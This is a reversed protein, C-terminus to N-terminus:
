ESRGKWPADLRFGDFLPGGFPALLEEVLALAPGSRKETFLADFASLFRAAFDADTQRLRRPITKSHSSWLGRSRFYFDAADQYLAAGTALLEEDSRPFKMDDAWDTLRYRRLQLEAEDFPPPGAEYLDSAERKLRASLESPAPVESGEMVMRMLAPLGRRRDREFFDRLTAADHVFAEVPWGEHVFAERYANPLREYVVVIDLDSAPTAEGRMVSGALFLVRAGAYRSRFIESAAELPEPRGRGDM